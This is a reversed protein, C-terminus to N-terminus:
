GTVVSRTAAGYCQVRTSKGRWYHVRVRCLVSNQHCALKRIHVTMAALEGLTALPGASTCAEAPLPLLMFRRALLAPEAWM